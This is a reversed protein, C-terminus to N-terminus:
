EMQEVLTGGGTKHYGSRAGGGRHRRSAEVKNRRGVKDRGRSRTVGDRGLGAAGVVIWRAKTYGRPWTGNRVYVCRRNFSVFNDGLLVM